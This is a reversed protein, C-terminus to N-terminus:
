EGRVELGAAVMGDIIADACRHEVAHWQGVAPGAQVCEAWWDRADGNLLRFLVLSGEDRVRVDCSESM